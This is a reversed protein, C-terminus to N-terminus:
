VMVLPKTEERIESIFYKLEELDYEKPYENENIMKVPTYNFNNQICWEYASQLDELIEDDIEKQEWKFLWDSLNMRNIHWDTLAEIINEPNNKNIQMVSKAIDLYPNEKNEPNLNFFISLRIKEPNSNYLKIAQEFATHCHGCSPSLALSVKVSNIKKGIEITSFIAGRTPMELPKLLLDFIKYNRKFRKLEKYNKELNIYNEIYKKIFFWTPIIIAVAIVMTTISNKFEFRDRFLLTAQLILLTSIALCLICWKELKVKQLWVSYLVIPISLFSLFNIISYSAIDILMAFIAISFFLVPLDSFDLWKNIKAGTSKIVSDCSTNENFTCLKSISEQGRDLKEQIIFISLLFGISYLLFSITAELSFHFGQKFFFLGLLGLGVLVTKQLTSNTKNQNNVNQEIVVIVGNWLEKFADVSLIQEKKDEFTIAVKNGKQQVLVLDLKKNEEEVYGLFYTPLEELQDKPVNAAVNDIGLLSYTDTIAFLSPYNPHSELLDEFEDIHSHNKTISLYKKLLKSM